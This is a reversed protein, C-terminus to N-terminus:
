RQHGRAVDQGRAAVQQQVTLQTLRGADPPTRRRIGAPRRRAGSRARVGPGACCSRLPGSPAWRATSWGCSSCTAHLGPRGAPGARHRPDAHDRQRGPGAPHRALEEEEALVAIRQELDDYTRALRQAKAQNRTTCDARTLAHLRTLLPGADASTAACRRTPGSAPATATSGCTCSSWGPCTPWWAAGPFRLATLRARAMKAGRDGRSPPLGGPRRAAALPDEAQRHRAAARGAAAGPGAGPRVAGGPRHGPGLVTLSHQYVDKHRYHEDAELRLAPVEPLVQEAVGTEVLLAIGRVARRGAALM